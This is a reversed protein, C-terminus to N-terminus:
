HLRLKCEPRFAAGPKPPGPSPTTESAQIEAHEKNLPAPRGAVGKRVSLQFSYRCGFGRSRSSFSIEENEVFATVAIACATPNQTELNVTEMASQVSTGDGHLALIRQVQQPSDCILGTGLHPAKARQHELSEQAALQRPVAFLVLVLAIRVVAIM